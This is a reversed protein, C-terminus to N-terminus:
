IAVTAKPPHLPARPAARERQSRRIRVQDGESHPVPFSNTVTVSNPGSVVGLLTGIVREQGDNRRIYHDLINFLVLPHVDVNEVGSKQNLILPNSTAM